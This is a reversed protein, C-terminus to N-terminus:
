VRSDRGELFGILIPNLFHHVSSLLWCVCARQEQRIHNKISDIHPFLVPSSYSNGPRRLQTTYLTFGGLSVDRLSLFSIVRWPQKVRAGEVVFEERHCCGPISVLDPLSLFPKPSVCIWFFRMSLLNRWFPSVRLLYSCLLIIRDLVYFCSYSIIKICIEPSCSLNWSRWM